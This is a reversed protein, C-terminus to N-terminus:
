IILFQTLECCIGLSLPNWIIPPFYIDTWCSMKHFEDARLNGAPVLNNWLYLGKLNLFLNKALKKKQSKPMSM